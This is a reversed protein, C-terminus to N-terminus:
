GKGRARQEKKRCPNDSYCRRSVRTIAAHKIRARDTTPMAQQCCTVSSGVDVSTTSKSSFSCASM